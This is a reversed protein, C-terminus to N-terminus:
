HRLFFILPLVNEGGGGGGGGEELCVVYFLRVWIPNISGTGPPRPSGWLNKKLLKQLFYTLFM